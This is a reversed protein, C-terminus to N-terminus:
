LTKLVKGENYSGVIGKVEQKLFQRNIFNQQNFFFIHVSVCFIRKFNYYIILM